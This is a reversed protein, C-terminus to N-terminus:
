ASDRPKAWGAAAAAVLQKYGLEYRRRRPRPTTKPTASPRTQMDLDPSRVTLRTFPYTNLM